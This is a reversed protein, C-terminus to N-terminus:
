PTVPDDGTLHTVLTFGGGGPTFVISSGTKYAERLVAQLMVTLLDNYPTIDTIVNQLVFVGVQTIKGELFAKAHGALGEIVYRHEPVDQDLPDVTGSYSTTGGIDRELTVDSSIGRVHISAPGRKGTVRAGTLALTNPMNATFHSAKNNVRQIFLAGNDAFMLDHNTKAKVQSGQLKKLQLGDIVEKTRGRRSVYGTAIVPKFAKGSPTAVNNTWKAEDGAIADWRTKIKGTAALSLGNFWQDQIDQPVVQTGPVVSTITLTAM